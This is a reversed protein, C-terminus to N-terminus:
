SLGRKSRRFWDGRINIDGHCGQFMEERPNVARERSRLSKNKQRGRQKSGGPSGEVGARSLRISPSQSHDSAWDGSLEAVRLSHPSRPRNRDDRPTLGSPSGFQGPSSKNRSASQRWYSKVEPCRRGRSANRSDSDSTNTTTDHVSRELERHKRLPYIKVVRPALGNNSMQGTSVGGPASDGTLKTLGQDDLSQPIPPEPLVPLDHNGTPAHPPSDSQEDASNSGSTDSARRDDDFLQEHGWVTQNEVPLPSILEKRSPREPSVPPKADSAEFQASDAQNGHGQSLGHGNPKSGLDQSGTVNEVPGQCFQRHERGPSDSVGTQNHGMQDPPKNNQRTTGKESTSPLGPPQLNPQSDVTYIGGQIPSNDMKPAVEPEETQELPMDHESGRSLDRASQAPQSKAPTENSVERGQNNVQEPARKEGPLSKRNEFTNNEKTMERTKMFEAANGGRTDRGNGNQVPRASSPEELEQKGKSENSVDNKPAASPTPVDGAPKKAAQLNRSSRVQSPLEGDKKADPAKAPSDAPCPPQRKPSTDPGHDTNPTSDDGKSGASTSGGTTDDKAPESPKQKSRHRKRAPPPIPQQLQEDMLKNLEKRKEDLDQLKQKGEQAAKKAAEELEEKQQATKHEISSAENSYRQRRQADENSNTMKWEEDEKRRRAERREDEQKRKQKISELEAQRKSSVEQQEKEYKTRLEALLSERKQELQEIEDHQKKASLGSITDQIKSLTDQLQPLLTEIEM